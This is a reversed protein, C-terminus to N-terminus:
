TSQIFPVIDVAATLKSRSSFLHFCYLHVEVVQTCVKKPVETSAKM